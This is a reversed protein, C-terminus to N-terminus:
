YQHANPSNGKAIHAKQFAEPSQYQCDKQLLHRYHHIVRAAQLRRSQHLADLLHAVCSAPSSVRDPVAPTESTSGIAPRHAYKMLHDRLLPSAIYGALDVWRV